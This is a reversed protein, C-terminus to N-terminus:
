SCNRRVLARALAHQPIKGKCFVSMKRRYLYLAGRFFRLIAVDNEVRGLQPQSTRFAVYCGEMGRRVIADENSKDLMEQVNDLLGRGRDDGLAWEVISKPWRAGGSVRIKGALM